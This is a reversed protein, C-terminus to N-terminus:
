NSVQGHSVIFTSLGAAFVDEVECRSNSPKAAMASVNPVDGSTQAKRVANFRVPAPQLVYSTGRRGGRDSFYRGGRGLQGVGGSGFTFCVGKRSLLVLHDSGSAIKIFFEDLVLPIPQVEKVKKNVLGLVGSGDRFNGWVFVKGLETLVACHSDGATISVPRGAPGASSNEPLFVQKPVTEDEDDECKRGLAGEDNCGFTFIKHDETICASHMGGSAIIKIREESISPIPYPKKRSTM